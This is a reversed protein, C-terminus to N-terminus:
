FMWICCDFESCLMWLKVCSEKQQLAQVKNPLREMLSEILDFEHKTWFRYKGHIFM